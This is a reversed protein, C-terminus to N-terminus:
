PLHPPPYHRSFLLPPCNTASLSCRRQRCHCFVVILLHLAAFASLLSPQRSNPHPPQAPPTVTQLVIVASSIRCAIVFFCCDVFSHSCLCHVVVVPLLCPVTTSASSCSNYLLLLSVAGHLISCFYFVPPSTHPPTNLKKRGEIRGEVSRGFHPPYYKQNQPSTKAVISTPNSFIPISTLNPTMRQLKKTM